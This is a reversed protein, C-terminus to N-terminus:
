GGRAKLEADLEAEKIRYVTLRHRCADAQVKVARLNDVQGPTALQFDLEAYGSPTNGVALTLEHSFLEVDAQQILARVTNLKDGLFETAM